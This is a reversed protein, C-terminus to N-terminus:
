FNIVNLYEEKENLSSSDRLYHLQTTKIDAHGLQAKVFSEPKGANLLVSAYTKRCKHISRRSIGVKDCLKYCVITFDHSLKRDGNLKVFLWESGIHLKMIQKITKITENNIYVDRVKLIGESDIEGKTGEEVDYHYGSNDKYRVERRSVHIVKKQFDIDSTKLTSLEGVRLGTELALKIALYTQTPNNNIFEVLKSIEDSSFVEVSDTKNQKRFMCKGLDLEDFFDDIDLKTFNRRKSYKWIGKLLIHVDSWAKSTLKYQKFLDLVYDELYLSSIDAIKKDKIPEFYKQFASTYRTVSSSSLNRYEHKWVIWLDFVEHVTMNSVKYNSTNNDHEKWYRIVIEEIESRSNRKVKKRKQLKEEDPLCTYWKGDSGLYISYPHQSLYYSKEQMLEDVQAQITALNIIDNDIAFDLLEKQSDISKENSQEMVDCELRIGAMCPAPISSGDARVVFLLLWKCNM